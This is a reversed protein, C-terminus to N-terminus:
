IKLHSGANCVKNVVMKWGKQFVLQKKEKAEALIYKLINQPFSARMLDISLNWDSGFKVDSVDM